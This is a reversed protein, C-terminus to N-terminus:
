HIWRAVRKVHECGASGCLGCIVARGPVPAALPVLYIPVRRNTYEERFELEFASPYYRRLGLLIAAKLEECEVREWHRLVYDFLWSVHPWGERVGGPKQFHLVRREGLHRHLCYISGLVEDAEMPSPALEGGRRFLFRAYYTEDFVRDVDEGAPRYCCRLVFRWRGGKVRVAEVLDVGEVVTPSQRSWVVMEWFDGPEELRERLFREVTCVGIAGWERSLERDWLGTIWEEYKRVREESPVLVLIGIVRPDSYSYHLGNLLHNLCKEPKGRNEYEVIVVRGGLHLLLDPRYRDFRRVEVREGYVKRALQTFVGHSNMTLRGVYSDYGGRVLGEMKLREFGLRTLVFYVRPKGRCTSVRLVERRVWGKGVCRECARRERPGLRLQGSYKPTPFLRRMFELEERLAQVSAGFEGVDVGL